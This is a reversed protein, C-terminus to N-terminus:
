SSKVKKLIKKLIMNYWKVPLIDISSLINYVAFANGKKNYVILFNVNIQECIM